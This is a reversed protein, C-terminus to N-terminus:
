VLSEVIYVTGTDSWYFLFLESNDDQKRYLLNCKSWDPIVDARVDIQSLLQEVYIIQDETPQPSNHFIKEIQFSTNQIKKNENGIPYDIVHYRIGDGHFSPESYSFFEKAGANPLEISWNTKLVRTYTTNVAKRMLFCIACIICLVAILTIAKFFKKM